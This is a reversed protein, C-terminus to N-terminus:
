MTSKLGIAQNTPSMIVIEWGFSTKPKFTIIKFLVLGKGSKFHSSVSVLKVERVVPRRHRTFRCQSHLAAETWCSQGVVSRDSSEKDLHNEEHAKSCERAWSSRLTMM